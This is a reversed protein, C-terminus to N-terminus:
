RPPTREPPHGAAEIVLPAEPVDELEGRLIREDRPAEIGLIVRGGEVRVVTLRIDDRIIVQEGVKRTLVLLSSEPRNTM